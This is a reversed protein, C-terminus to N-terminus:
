ALTASCCRNARRAHALIPRTTMPHTDHRPQQQYAHRQERKHTSGCPRGIKWDPRSPKKPLACYKLITCFGNRCLRKKCELAFEETGDNRATKSFQGWSTGLIPVGDHVLMRKPAGLGVGLHSKATLVAGDLKELGAKQRGLLLQLL